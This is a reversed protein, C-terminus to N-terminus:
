INMNLLSEKDQRLMWLYESTKVSNAIIKAFFFRTGFKKGIVTHNM